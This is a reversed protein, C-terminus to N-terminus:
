GGNLLVAIVSGCGKQGSPARRATLTEICNSAPPWGILPAPPGIVSGM